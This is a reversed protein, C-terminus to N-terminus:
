GWDLYVKNRTLHAALLISHVLLPICAGKESGLGLGDPIPTFFCVQGAPAFSPKSPQSQLRLAAAGHMRADEETAYYGLFRQKNDM